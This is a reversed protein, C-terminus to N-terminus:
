DGGGCSGVGGDSGCDCASSDHSSGGDYSGSDGVFCSPGGSFTADPNSWSSPGHRRRRDDSAAVSAVIALLAVVGAVILVLTM